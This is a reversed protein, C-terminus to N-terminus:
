RNGKAKKGWGDLREGAGINSYQPWLKYIYKTGEIQQYEPVSKNERKIM